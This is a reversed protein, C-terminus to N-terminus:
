QIKRSDMWAQGFCKHHIVTTGILYSKQWFWVKKKCQDCKIM